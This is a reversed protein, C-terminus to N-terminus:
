IKCIERVIIENNDNLLEVVYYYPLADLLLVKNNTNDDDTDIWVAEKVQTHGVVQTWIRGYKDQYLDSILSQPRIWLPGNWKTDGYMSYGFLTEFRFIDLPADNFEDVDYGDPKSIARVSTEHVFSNSVGAHSYITKNIEDKYIIQIDKNKLMDMILHHAWAETRWNYGSYQESQMIYHYDHNGLLLIFDGKGSEIHNKRLECLNMFASYIDDTNIDYSDLYDGLMIVSDPQEADYIAKVADFRGHM